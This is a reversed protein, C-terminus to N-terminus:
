CWYESFCKKLFGCSHQTVLQKYYQIKRGGNVASGVCLHEPTLSM